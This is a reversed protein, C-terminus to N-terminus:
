SVTLVDVGQRGEGQIRSERAGLVIAGGVGMRNMPPSCGEGCPGGVNVIIDEVSARLHHSISVWAARQPIGVSRLTACTSRQYGESQDM